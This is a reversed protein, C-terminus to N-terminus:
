SERAVQYKECGSGSGSDLGIRSWFNLIVSVCVFLSMPDPVSTKVKEQELHDTTETEITDVLGCCGEKTSADQM